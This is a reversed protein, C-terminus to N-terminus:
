VSVGGFVVACFVMVLMGVAIMGAALNLISLAITATKLKRLKRAACLGLIGVPIGAFFLLAGGHIGVYELLKWLPGSNLINTPTRSWWIVFPLVAALPLQLLFPWKRPRNEM